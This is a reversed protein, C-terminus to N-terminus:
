GMLYLKYFHWLFFFVKIKIKKNKKTKSLNGQNCMFNFKVLAHMIPPSSPTSRAKGSEVAADRWMVTEKNEAM